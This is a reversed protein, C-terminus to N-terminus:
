SKPRLLKGTSSATVLVEGEANVLDADLFVVSGGWRLVRARATVPIVGVRNLYSVKLELTSIGVHPDRARVAHAMANDLWAAILGGQITTGQSHAFDPRAHFQVHAVGSPETHVIRDFGITELMRVTSPDQSMTHPITAEGNM